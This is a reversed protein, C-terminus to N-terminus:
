LRVSALDRGVTSRSLALRPLWPPGRGIRPTEPHAGCIGARPEGADALSAIVEYGGPPQHECPKNIKVLQIPPHPDSPFPAASCRHRIAEAISLTTCGRELGPSPKSRSLNELPAVQIVLGSASAVWRGVPGGAAGALM